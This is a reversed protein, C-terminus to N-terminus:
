QETKPPYPDFTLTTDKGLIDTGGTITVTAIVKGEELAEIANNLLVWTEKDSLSLNKITYMVVPEENTGNETTVTKLEYNQLVVDTGTANPIANIFITNTKPTQLITDPITTIKAKTDYDVAKLYLNNVTQFTSEVFQSSFSSDFTTPNLTISNSSDISSDSGTNLELKDEQTLLFLQTALKNLSEYQNTIGSTTTLNYNNNAVKWYNDAKVNAKYKNNVYDIEALGVSELADKKLREEIYNRLKFYTDHATTYSSATTSFNSMAQEFDTSNVTAMNVSINPTTPSSFSSTYQSIKISM